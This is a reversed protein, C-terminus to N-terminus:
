MQEMVTYHVDEMVVGDKEGLSSDYRLIVERSTAPLLKGCKDELGTSVRVGLM